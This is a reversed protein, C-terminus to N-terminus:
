IEVESLQKLEEPIEDLEMHNWYANPPTQNKKKKLYSTCRHCSVCYTQIYQEFKRDLDIIYLYQTQERYYRERCIHCIYSATGEILNNFKEVMKDCNEEGDKKLLKKRKRKKGAATRKREEEVKKDLWEQKTRPTELDEKNKRRLKIGGIRKLKSTPTLQHYRQFKKAADKVLRKRKTKPTESEHKKSKRAADLRKRRTTPTEFEYKNCRPTESQNEEKRRGGEVAKDPVSNSLNKTDATVGYLSHM